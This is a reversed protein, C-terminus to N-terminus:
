LAGSESEIALMLLLSCFLLFSQLLSGRCLHIAHLGIERALGRYVLVTLLHLDHLKVVCRIQIYTYVQVCPACAPYGIESFNRSQANLPGNVVSHSTLPLKFCKPIVAALSPLPGVFLRKRIRSTGIM